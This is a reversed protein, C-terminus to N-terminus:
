ELVDRLPWPEPTSAKRALQIRPPSPPDSRRRRKAANLIAWLDIPTSRLPSARPDNPEPLRETRSSETPTILAGPTASACYAAPPPVAVPTGDTAIPSPRLGVTAFVVPDMATPVSATAPDM